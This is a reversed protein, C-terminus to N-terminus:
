RSSGETRPGARFWGRTVARVRLDLGFGMREPRRYGREMAALDLHVTNLDELLVEAPPIAQVVAVAKLCGKCGECIEVKWADERGKAGDVEATLYGLRRYDSEGCFACRLWGFEWGAGCRGCRLWRKRELGRFEALAPWAACVPCFGATWGTRAREEAARRCAYLLPIAAFQAAARFVGLEVGMRGALGDLRPQHLVISAELLTAATAVDAGCKRRSAVQLVREVWRRARRGDVLVELDHLWPAGGPAPRRPPDPVLCGDWQGAEDEHTVAAFLDLWM